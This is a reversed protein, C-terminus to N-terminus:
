CLLLQLCCSSGTSGPILPVRIIIPRGMDNLHKLNSLIRSNSVGTNIRHIGSNIGKIDFLLLDAEYVEELTYHKGFWDLAGTYCVEICQGCNSCLKRDVQIEIGKGTLLEIASEACIEICNGCSIHILFITLM